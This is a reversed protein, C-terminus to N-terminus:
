YQLWTVIPYHDSLKKQVTRYDRSEFQPSYFIYDIRFPLYFSRYSKGIGFGSESFADKLGSTLQNYAYSAPTDNMDACLIVPYPSVRVAEKIQRAQLARKTYSLKLKQLIKRSTQYVLTNDQTSLENIFIRDENSLRLSEFHINFVRITDTDHVVDCMIGSYYPSNGFSIIDRRIMPLRSFIATGYSKGNRKVLLYNIHSHQYKLRSVIADEIQFDPSDDTFFEQICLIDPSESEIMQFIERITALNDRQVQMYQDFFMANFSMVKLHRKHLDVDKLNYLRVHSNVYKWGVAIALLSILVFWRQRIVWYVVFLVNIILLVPYALGFYAIPWLQEPSIYSSLYSIFLGVVSITNLVMMTRILFQSSNKKKAM